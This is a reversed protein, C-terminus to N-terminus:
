NYLARVQNLKIVSPRGQALGQRSGRSCYAPWVLHGMSLGVQKQDREDAGASHKGTPIAPDDEAEQQLM